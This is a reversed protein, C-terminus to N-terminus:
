ANTSSTQPLTITNKPTIRCCFAKKLFLKAESRLTGNFFFYFCPDVICNLVMMNATVDYVSRDLQGQPDILTALFLYPTWCVVFAMFLAFLQGALRVEETRIKLTLVPPSRQVANRRTEIRTRSKRYARWIGIYCIIIIMLPLIFGFTVVTVTFSISYTWDYLCVDMAKHFKMRGWGFQAPLPLLLAYLWLSLLIATINRDSFIDRYTAVHVISVYRNFAIAAISCISAHSTVCAIYGQFRCTIEGLTWDGEIIVKMVFPIVCTLFLTDAVALSLLFSHQHMKLKIKKSWATTIFVLGNGVLGALQLIIVVTIIIPVEIPTDGPIRGALSSDNTDISTTTDISETSTADMNEVQLSM